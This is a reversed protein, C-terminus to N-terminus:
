LIEIKVKIIGSRLDAIRAFAAKSLDIIRGKRALRKAPGRDTVVVSVSAGTALNTVKLVTGFEKDWIACTYANENFIENNAMRREKNIIKGYIRLEEESCSKGDYWSAEGYLIEPDGPSAEPMLSIAFCILLVCFILKM